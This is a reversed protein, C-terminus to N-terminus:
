DNREGTNTVTGEVATKLARVIANRALRIKFDNHGHGVAGELLKDAVQGFLAPDPQKGELLQEAEPRRWPKHAVGGLAIRASRIAGDPGIDLAAAVSVLAFAYSLRERLKLYASHAAYRADGTVKARGDVRSVATGTRVQGTGPEAVPARLDHILDTM